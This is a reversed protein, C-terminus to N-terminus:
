GGDQRDIRDADQHGNWRIRGLTLAEGPETLWYEGELTLDGM